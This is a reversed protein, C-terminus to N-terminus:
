STGYARSMSLGDFRAANFRDFSATFDGAVTM